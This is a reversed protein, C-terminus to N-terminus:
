ILNTPIRMVSCRRLPKKILSIQEYHHWHCNPEEYNHLTCLIYSVLPLLIRCEAYSLLFKHAGYISVVLLHTMVRSKTITVKFPLYSRKRFPLTRIHDNGAFLRRSLTQLQIFFLFLTPFSNLILFSSIPADKKNFTFMVCVKNSNNVKFPYVSASIKYRFIFKKSSLIPYM